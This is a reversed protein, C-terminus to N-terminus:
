VQKNFGYHQIEGKLRANVADEFNNFLGLRIHEGDVHIEASWKGQKTYFSVGSKGSTNNPDLGKNYGQISNTAWRCNSPEYNGDNDIRDLTLGDPAEGMDALFNTFSGGLAPNWMHCVTIGRGSHHPFEEANEEKCRRLMGEHIQYTRTDSMGHTNRSCGCSVTNGSILNNTSVLVVKGCICSCIVRRKNSTECRAGESTITLSGFVEGITYKTPKRKSDCGCSKPMNSALIKSKPVVKNGGCDCVCLYKHIGKDSNGLYETVTLKNQKHGIKIEIAKM